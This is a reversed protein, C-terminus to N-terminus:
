RVGYNQSEYNSFIRPAILFLAGGALFPPIHAPAWGQDQTCSIPARLGIAVRQYSPVFHRLFGRV